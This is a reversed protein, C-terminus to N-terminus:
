IGIQKFAGSKFAYYLAVCALYGVIVWWQKFRNFASTSLGYMAGLMFSFINLNKWSIIFLNTLFENM